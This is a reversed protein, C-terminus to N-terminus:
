QYIFLSVSLRVSLYVCHCIFLGVFISVSLHSFQFFYLSVFIYRDSAISTEDDPTDPKKKVKHLFTYPKLEFCNNLLNVDVETSLCMFGIALGGVQYHITNNENYVNTYLTIKMTYM